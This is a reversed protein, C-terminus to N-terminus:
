SHRTVFKSHAPLAFRRRRKPNDASKSLVVVVSEISEYPSGFRRRRGSLDSRQRRVGFIIMWSRSNAIQQAQRKSFLSLKHARKYGAYETREDETVTTDSKADPERNQSEEATSHASRVVAYFGPAHAGPDSDM